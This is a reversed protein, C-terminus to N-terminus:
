PEMHWIEPRDEGKVFVGGGGGASLKINPSIRIKDSKKEQAELTEAERGHFPDSLCSIRTCIFLKSVLKVDDKVGGGEKMPM